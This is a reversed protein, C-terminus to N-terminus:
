LLVPPGPPPLWLFRSGAAFIAVALALRLPAAAQAALTGDDTAAAALPWRAAAVLARDLARSVLWALVVLAALAIWQWLRIQLFRVEFFPAPLLHAPPGWGYEAYLAPIAAVTTAAFKWLPPGPPESVREILIEVPGSATEITGVSDRLAPLGDDPDGEPQDSLREL